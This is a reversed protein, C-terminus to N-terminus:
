EIKDEEVKLSSLLKDICWFIFDWVFSKVGYVVYLLLNKVKIKM